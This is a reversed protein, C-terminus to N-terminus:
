CGQYLCRPLIYIQHILVLIRYPPEQKRWGFYLELRNRICPNSNRTGVKWKKKKKAGKSSGRPRLSCVITLTNGLISSQLQGLQSAEDNPSYIGVNRLFTIRGKEADPPRKPNSSGSSSPVVIMRLAPLWEGWSVDYRGLLLRTKELDAIGIWTDERGM